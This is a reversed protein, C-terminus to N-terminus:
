NGQLSQEIATKGTSKPGVHYGVDDAVTLGDGVKKKRGAGNPVPQKLSPRSSYHDADM